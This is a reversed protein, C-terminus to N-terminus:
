VTGYRWHLSRTNPRTRYQIKVWRIQLSSNGTDITLSWDSVAFSLSRLIQFRQQNAPTAIVQKENAPPDLTNHAKRPNSSAAHSLKEYNVQSDLSQFKVSQNDPKTASWQDSTGIDYSLHNSVLVTLDSSPQSVISLETNYFHHNNSNLLELEHVSIVDIDCSDLIIRDSLDATTESFDLELIL